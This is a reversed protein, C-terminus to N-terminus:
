YIAGKGDVCLGLVVFSQPLAVIVSLAPYPVVAPESTDLLFWVGPFLSFALSCVSPRHAHSASLHPLLTLVQEPTPLGSTHITKWFFAAVM